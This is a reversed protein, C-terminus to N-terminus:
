RFNEVLMIDTGANDLQSYLIERRDPSVTLNHSHHPLKGLNAIRRVRDTAFDFFEIAVGPKADSNIFYIGNEVVGWDTKFESKFLDTVQLEDGGNVPIRWIGSTPFTKVYYIFQGDPSELPVFGGQRTVQVAEGGEGPVKWVQYVGTRNSAFYIWRGDRSWSPVINDFDGSTIARPQGPEASVVYVQGRREGFFDFAIQQGDPSWRPSGAFKNLFTLQVANSGDSECKWIEFQGSRDSHFVVKRGDPSYEPSADNRTSAIFKTPASKSSTASLEKRYISLDGSGQIFALHNGRRAIRPHIANHGGEAFREATGGSAPIRWLSGNGEVYVPNQSFIIERGDATWTLGAITTNTFTLRRPEGGGVSVIYIDASIWSSKRVFAVSQGDPSFEPDFDGEGPSNLDALNGGPPSTLASKALTDASVLFIRFPGEKPDKEAFAIFKGDPSWDWGCFTTNSGLDFIKREAGGSAPVSFITAAGTESYRVFAVEKGDPTWVPCVTNGGNSTTLRRPKEVGIQKVYIDAIFNGEQGTWAFAIENGDPSFAGLWESGAFSTFPVVKMAPLWSKVPQRSAYFWLSGGVILAFTAVLLALRRSTLKSKARHKSGVSRLDELLETMKQYRKEREQHIAKSVILQLEVPADPLYHALPLPEQQAPLVNNGPPKVAFPMQGTVIEYIVVGLSFIDTRKDVLLGQAQEPSMYGVTGMVGTDTIGAIGASSPGIEGTEQVTLKALGFDLVKIYGDRRLMVNEPKIDRHVIGVNHAAVLASAVQEAINLMESWELNKSKIRERLTVGDVFETAIFHFGDLKAIEYITLINHHNLASAARAEREFRLLRNPDSTLHKPLLKLAVPRDLSVDQALYVVGMGGRGIERVIQYHGLQQGVLAASEENILSQAALAAAPTEMFGQEQEYSSLLSTVESSLIQDGACAQDLFAAREEPAHDLAAEFVEKVRHWQEPTV